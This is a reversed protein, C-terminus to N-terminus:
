CARHAERSAPENLRCFVSMGIDAMSDHVDGRRVDPFEVCAARVQAILSSLFEM